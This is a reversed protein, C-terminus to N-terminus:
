SLFVECFRYISLRFSGLRVGIIILPTLTPHDVKVGKFTPM